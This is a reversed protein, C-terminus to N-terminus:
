DEAGDSEIVSICNNKKFIDSLIQAPKFVKSLYRAHSLYYVTAAIHSCCGVTRKGSACECTHHTLSSVGVSNPRYRLFCRYSSHSIHRSLVKLKLVNSQDKAYQNKLKGDKEMMETLYSVAQSLKYLDTSLIILDRETM